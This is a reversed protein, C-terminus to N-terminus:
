SYAQVKRAFVLFGTHGVMTHAPRVSPGEINWDRMLFERIEIERYVTSERMRAVLKEVQPVTPLYSVFLGGPPQHEAAEILAHWPEPLDLIIREPRVESIVPEVEGQRLEIHDPVDGRYRRRIWRAAHRAHDERTEVSVLRGTPGIVRALAMTLAGSGTGAEVVTMGPGVDGYVLIPGIDKPYVVQPGRKMRLIFDALRPRLVVLEGGGSTTMREGEHRGIIDSHALDGRHYNFQRSPDLRVLFQRGREDVLIVTEDTEIPHGSGSQHNHHSSM